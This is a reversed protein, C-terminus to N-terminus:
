DYSADAFWHGSALDRYIRYLAVSAGNGNALAVDWEERDLLAGSRQGRKEGECEGDVLRRVLAMAGGVVFDQRSTRDSRKAEGRCDFQCPAREVASSTAAMCSSVDAISTAAAAGIDSMTPYKASQSEKSAAM